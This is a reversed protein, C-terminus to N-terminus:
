AQWRRELERAAEITYKAWPKANLRTKPIPKQTMACVGYTRDRIRLLAEDIEILRKRETEALGLTFDQDYTDSGIDAMHIPLNSLNGGSTKLAATEMASVDGVLEGRKELLVQEYHRLEKTSLKTKVPKASREPEVANTDAKRSRSKKTVPQGKTSIMRVRRGNVFVYGQADAESASAAEAVSQAGLARRGTRKRKTTKKTSKAGSKTSKAPAKKATKQATKKVPKKTTKKAPAKTKKKTKKKQGARKAAARKAPRKKAVKKKTKKRTTRKKTM